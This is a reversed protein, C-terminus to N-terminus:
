VHKIEQMDINREGTDVDKQFTLNGAGGSGGGGMERVHYCLVSIVVFQM